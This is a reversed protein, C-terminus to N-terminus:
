DASSDPASQDADGPQDIPNRNSTGDARDSTSVPEARAASVCSRADECLERASRCLDDATELLAASSDVLALAKARALEARFEQGAWDMVWWMRVFRPCSGFTLAINVSRLEANWNFTLYGTGTAELQCPFLVM